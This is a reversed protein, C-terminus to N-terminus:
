IARGTAISGGAFVRFLTLFPFSLGSSASSGLVKLHLLGAFTAFFSQFGTVLTLVPLSNTTKKKKKKKKKNNNNNNNNNKSPM